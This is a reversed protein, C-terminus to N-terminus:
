DNDGNQDGNNRRLTLEIDVIFLLNIAVLLVLGVILFATRPSTSSSILDNADQNLTQREIDPTPRRPRRRLRLVQLIADLAMRLLNSIASLVKDICMWFSLHRERSWNYLIHLGLFFAFPPILNAVPILVLSYMALSAIRLLSSSFRAPAGVVTLMPDCGDLSQGFKPPDIWLWIGVAAM